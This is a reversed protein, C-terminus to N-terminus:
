RFVSSYANPQVQKARSPFKAIQSLVTKFPNRVFFLQKLWIKSSHILIGFSKLQKVAEKPFYKLKEDIFHNAQTVPKMEPYLFITILLM